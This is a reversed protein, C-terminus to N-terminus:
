EACSNNEIPLSFHFVSGQDAESEVGYTAGHRQLIDASIYLGLGLGQFSRSSEDSRYFKEFVKSQEEKAIGIGFDRVRVEVQGADKVGAKVIVKKNNPSYKVANTLFNLMVQELRSEDGCIQLSEFGDYQFEYSSYTQCTNEICDTLMKGFDFREMNMRLKGSEIKSVDLLDAILDDLKKIQTLAKTVYMKMPTEEAVSRELLQVYGKISTLPTKLEHSAMSIFEDKKRSVQKQEDIDTFTGVWRIIQGDERVPVTRLLFCRYNEADPKRMRVETDIPEEQQIM